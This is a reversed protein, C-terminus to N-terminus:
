RISIACTPAEGFRRRFRRVKRRHTALMKTEADEVGRGIAALARVHRGVRALARRVRRGELRDMM